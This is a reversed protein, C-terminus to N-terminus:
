NHNYIEIYESDKNLKKTLEKLIKRRNSYMKMSFHHIISIFDQTLEQQFDEEKTLNVVEISTNFQSFINKFYEFGFRVLRDKYSIYVTSVKNEVVLQILKNFNTRNENMGSAIDELVLDPKVGKNVMYQTLFTTQTRLDNIQKQNSVRAYIVNLREELNSKNLVSNLDYLYKKQSLKISKIKETDKWTKLTQKTIHLADCIEKSTKYNM